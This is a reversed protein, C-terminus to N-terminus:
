RSLSAIINWLMKKALDSRMFSSSWVGYLDCMFSGVKGKGYQWQAYIPVNWPGSLVMEAGDKLKTGYFGELPPMMEQQIGLTIDNQICLQPQFEEFNISKIEPSTLEEHMIRPLSDVDLVSYFRGSGLSAANQLEKIGASTIDEGIVVFSFTVPANENNVYAEIVPSYEQYTDAPTGDTLLVVHRKEVNKMAQLARAAGHLADGFVTGGGTTIDDIAKHLKAMQTMPSLDMAVTYQEELTAIGCYDRETLVDLCAKAGQKALELKTRGNEAIADMSGSSDILLMVAAPPTYDIAQVPLIEQYLTGFMDERNYANPVPVGNEYIFNGNEDVKNGGVTFLGGGFDNVYSHLIEVFGDPMDANAINNLIVEDYPFLEEVTSPFHEDTACLVTIEYETEELLQMFAESEGVNSEVVLIRMTGDDPIPTSDNGSGGGSSEGSTDESANDSGDQSGTDVIEDKSSDDVSSDFPSSGGQSSGGQPSGCASLGFAMCVSLIWAFIKRKM